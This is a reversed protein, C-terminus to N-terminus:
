RQRRWWRAYAAVAIAVLVDIPGLVPLPSSWKDMNTTRSYYPPGGGYAESLNLVNFTVVGVVIAALAVGVLIFATNRAM